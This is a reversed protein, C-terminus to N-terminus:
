TWPVQGIDLAGAVGQEVKSEFHTALEILRTRLGALVGLLRSIETEQKAITADRAAIQKQLQANHARLASDSSGTPKALQLAQEDSNQASLRKDIELNNVKQELEKIRSNQEKIVMQAELRANQAELRANKETLLAVDTPLSM